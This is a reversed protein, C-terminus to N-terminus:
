RRCCRYGAIVGELPPPEGTVMCLGDIMSGVGAARIVVAQTIIRSKLRLLPRNGKGGDSDNRGGGRKAGGIIVDSAQKGDRLVCCSLHFNKWGQSLYLHKYM